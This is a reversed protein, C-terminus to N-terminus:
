MVRPLRQTGSAGPLLGLKVEPLGFSADKTAIRFHCSLATELGGGFATGMIAAVVPKSCNEIRELVDPLHPEEMPKGFERIDAWASFARGRGIIVVAEIDNDKEAMEIGDALGKRVKIGLANVPPNDIALIGINDKKELSVASTIETM